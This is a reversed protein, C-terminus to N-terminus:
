KVKEVHTLACKTCMPVLTWSNKPVDAKQGVMLEAPENCKKCSSVDGKEM